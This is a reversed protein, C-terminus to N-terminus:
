FICIYIKTIMYLMHSFVIAIILLVQEVKCHQIKVIQQVSDGVRQKCYTGKEIIYHLIKM